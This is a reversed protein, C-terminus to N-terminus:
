ADRPSPSTYLLCYIWPTKLKLCADNILYRCAFNDSCDLVLDAKAILPDVNDETLFDTVTNIHINPNNAQLRKKAAEVKYSDIDQEGFLIQRQLNTRSVVDADVLTIEGVGAAALYQSVPCGLGGAGVILVHAQKLKRQGDVGFKNLQIHRQYRQWENTNFESM